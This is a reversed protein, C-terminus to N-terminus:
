GARRTKRGHRSGERRAHSGVRVFPASRGDHQDDRQARPDRRTRRGHDAELSRRERRRHHGARHQAGSEDPERGHLQGLRDPREVDGFRGPCRGTRRTKRGHRSRAGRAHSGVRVVAAPRGDHQDHEQARPNRRPSRRHDEEVFRRQRGLDHGRRHQSSTLHPQRGDLQRLRHPGEVHRQRRQCRGSRRAKRRHRSRAGRPHSGLRVVRTARGDHQRDERHPPIRRAAPPRRVRDGDHPFPRGERRRRDGALGRQDAARSRDGALEGVRLDHEM